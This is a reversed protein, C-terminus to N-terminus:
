DKNLTALSAAALGIQSLIQTATSWLTLQDMHQADLPVVITDGPALQNAYNSVAFWSGSGPLVVSGNAKIIYIREDDAKQKLGGSAKIYDDVSKGADFLHTAALNVEGIVSVSDQMAPIYLADGDELQITKTARKDLDIVLRGLAEVKSLDRLIKDMDEYPMSTNATASKQFTNTIIDRRLEQTLRQIQSTEKRKISERTFIAADKHAFESLGGVRTLLSELTEGRKITYIGPFRVEGVVKVQLRDQWNPRPFINVTDKSTLAQTPSTLEDLGNFQIHEVQKGDNYVVRTLEVQELYAAELFGGAAQVAKQFNAQKALPYVGPFKVQGNVAFLKAPETPTAQRQLKAVIPALLKQRSFVAYDDEEIEEPEEFLAGISTILKVEEEELEFLEDDKLGIYKLFEDREFQEWLKVNERLKLQEKNYALDDLLQEEEEKLQYRSFVVITDNSSLAIDGSKGDFIDQLSFQLIDIDGKFNVERIILSYGFDAISLLDERPASFVDKLTKGQHWEYHGPSTVAGVVTVTNQFRTSAANVSIEDGNQPKYSTNQTFNYNLTIRKGDGNYRSVVVKSKNANAKFGGSMALVSDLSDSDKLEFIAQRNVEGKVKIKKAAPPIFVVDGPKLVVDDSSDGFLLLDYLDFTTVLEGARKVQIKRLSGNDSVGGSVFLAHTVTALPSVTYSGPKYAEGVVMIRMPNLEGMSVFAQVGIMEEAIKKSILAKLEKFSLGIVHIPSLNPIALRGERDIQVEHEENTKGYLNIKVMDGIGLLYTDPIAALESPMFTTPEGAFLEYGFPKLEELKPKYKDEETEEELLDKQDRPRISSDKEEDKKDGKTNGDLTNLDIGYRKALAEQQAKPLKKFQEIQQKSPTIAVTQHSILIFVSLFLIRFFKVSIEEM